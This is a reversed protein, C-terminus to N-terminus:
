VSSNKLQITCKRGWCHRKAEEMATFRVHREGGIADFWSMKGNGLLAHDKGVAAAASQVSCTTAINVDELRPGGGVSQAAAICRTAVPHAPMLFFIGHYIM